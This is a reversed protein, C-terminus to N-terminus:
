PQGGYLALLSLLGLCLEEESPPPHLARANGRLELVRRTLEAGEGAGFRRVHEQVEGPECDLLSRLEAPSFRPVAHV